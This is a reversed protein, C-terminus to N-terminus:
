AHGLNLIESWLLKFSGARGINILPFDSCGRKTKKTIIPVNRNQIFPAQLSLICIEKTRKIDKISLSLLASNYPKQYRSM